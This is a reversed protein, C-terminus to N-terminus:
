GWSSREMNTKVSIKSCAEEVIDTVLHTTISYYKEPLKIPNDSLEVSSYVRQLEHKLFQAKSVSFDNYRYILIPMLQEKKEVKDQETRRDVKHGDGCSLALLSMCITLFCAVKDM